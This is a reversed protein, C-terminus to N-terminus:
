REPLNKAWLRNLGTRAISTLEAGRSAAQYQTERYMRWSLLFRLGNLHAKASGDRCM